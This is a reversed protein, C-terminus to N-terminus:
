GAAISPLHQLPQKDKTKKDSRCPSTPLSPHPLSVPPSPPLSVPLSLSPPSPSFVKNWDLCCSKSIIRRAAGRAAKQNALIWTLRKVSRIHSILSWVLNHSLSVALLPIVWYSLWIMQFGQKMDNLEGAWWTLWMICCEFDVQINKPKM